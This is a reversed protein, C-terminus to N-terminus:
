DGDRVEPSVNVPEARGLVAEGEIEWAANCNPCVAGDGYMGRWFFIGNARELPTSCRSCPDGIKKYVLEM